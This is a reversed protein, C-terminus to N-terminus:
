PLLQGQGLGPGPTPGSPVQRAAAATALADVLDYLRDGSHGKV